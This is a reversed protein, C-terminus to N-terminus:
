LGHDDPLTTFLRLQIEEGWKKDDEIKNKCTCLIWSNLHGFTGLRIIKPMIYFLMYLVGAHGPSGEWAFYAEVGQRM